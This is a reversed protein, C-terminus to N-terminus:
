SEQFAKVFYGFLESFSELFRGVCNIWSGLKLAECFAWYLLGVQNRILKKKEDEELRISM